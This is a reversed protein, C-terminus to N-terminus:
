IAVWNTRDNPDGGMYKYGDKVTGVPPGNSLVADMLDFEAKLAEEFLQNREEASMTAFDFSLALKDVVVKSAALYRDYEANTQQIGLRALAVKTDQENLIDLAQSAVETETLNPNDIAIQKKRTDLRRVFDTENAGAIQAEAITLQNVRDLQRESEKSDRDLRRSELDARASAIAQATSLGQTRQASVLARVGNEAEFQSLGLGRLDAILKDMDAVTAESAALREGAIINEEEMAGAGFGGLGQLAGQQLGARFKRRKEQEPSFRENRQQQLQQQATERRATLESFGTLEKFRDAQLRAAENADVNMDAMAQQLIIDELSPKEEPLLRAPPYVASGNLGNYGIIGGEQKGVVGRGMLIDAQTVEGDKNLDPFTGGTALSVIGGGAMGATNEPTPAPAQAATSGEYNMLERRINRLGEQNGEALFKAEIKKLKLYRQRQAEESSPSLFPADQQKAKRGEAYGVIGGDAMRNMNTAPMGAMGQMPPRMPQQGMMPPRMPQRQQAMMPMATQMPTSPAGAGLMKRRQAAQVQAGRSQLGPALQRVLAVLGENINNDVQEKVTPMQPPVQNMAKQNDVGSLLDLAEGLLAEAKAAETLSKIGQPATGEVVSMAASARPDQQMRQMQGQMQQNQMPNGMMQGPQQMNLNLRDM